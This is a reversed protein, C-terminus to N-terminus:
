RIESNSDRYSIGYALYSVIVKNLLTNLVPVYDILPYGASHSFLLTVLVTLLKFLDTRLDTFIQVNDPLFYTTM